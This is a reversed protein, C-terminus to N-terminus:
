SSSYSYIHEGDGSMGYKKDVQKVNRPLKGSFYDKPM